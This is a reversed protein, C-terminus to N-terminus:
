RDSKKAHKLLDRSKAQKSRQIQKSAFTMVRNAKEKGNNENEISRINFQLNHADKNSNRHHYDRTLFIVFKIHLAMQM